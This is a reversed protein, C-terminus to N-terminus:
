CSSIGLFASMRAWFLGWGLEQQLISQNTASPAYYTLTEAIKRYQKELSCHYLTIVNHLRDALKVRLSVLSATTFSAHYHADREEDSLFQPAIEPKTLVSVASSVSLGYQELIYAESCEDPFHEIADHLLAIIVEDPDCSKMHIMVIVAVAHLHEMYLSGSERRVGIFLKEVLDYARQIRAQEQVRFGSRTRLYLFFMERTKYTSLRNLLLLFQFM